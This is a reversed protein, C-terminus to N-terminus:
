VEEYSGCEQYIKPDIADPDEPNSKMYDGIILPESLIFDSHENYYEGVL